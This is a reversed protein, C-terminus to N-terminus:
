KVYPFYICSQFKLLVPIFINANAEVLILITRTMNTSHFHLM